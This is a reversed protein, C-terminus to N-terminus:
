LREALIGLRALETGFEERRGADVLFPCIGDMIFLWVSSGLVNIVELKLFFRLDLSPNKEFRLVGFDSVFVSSKDWGPDERRGDIRGFYFIITVVEFFPFYFFFNRTCRLPDSSLDM